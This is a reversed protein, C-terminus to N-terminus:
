HFLNKSSMETLIRLGEDSAIENFSTEFSNM